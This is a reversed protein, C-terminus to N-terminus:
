LLFKILKILLSEVFNDFTGFISKTKIKSAGTYAQLFGGKDEEEVALKYTLLRRLMKLEELVREETTPEPNAERAEQGWLKVLKHVVLLGEDEDEEDRSAPRLHEVQRRRRPPM